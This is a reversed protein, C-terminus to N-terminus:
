DRVQYVTIAYGSEGMFDEVIKVEIRREPFLLALRTKWFYVLANGFSQIISENEVSNTYSEIFFDGLSWTNVFQEIKEPENKYREKLGDLDGQYLESIFVYDDVLEVSPCLVNMVSIFDEINVSNMAHNMLSRGRQNEFLALIENNVVSPFNMM